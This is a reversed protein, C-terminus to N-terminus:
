FDLFVSKPDNQSIKSWKQLIHNKQSFDTETVCLQMNDGLPGDMYYTCACFAISKSGRGCRVGKSYPFLNIKCPAYAKSKVGERGRGAYTSYPHDRVEHLFASFVLSGIRLFSGSPSVSVPSNM